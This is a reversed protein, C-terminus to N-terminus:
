RLILMRDCELGVYGGHKELESRSDEECGGSERCRAWEWEIM